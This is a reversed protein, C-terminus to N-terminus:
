TAFSASRQDVWQQLLEDTRDDAQRRLRPPALPNAAVDAGMAVALNRVTDAYSTALEEYSVRLPEISRDAFLEAWATEGDDIIQRCAEIADVDLSLPEAPAPEEGVHVSWQQSLMARWYSVSQRLRDERQVHVYVAGPFLRELMAGASEDEGQLRLDASMGQVHQWHLKVGLVGDKSSRFRYLDRVYSEGDTSGWRASLETVMARLNLYEAPVGLAGTYRLGETLLTSGSRPTACVLYCRPPPSPAGPPVRDFAPSLLDDAM